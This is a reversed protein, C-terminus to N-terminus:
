MIGNPLTPPGARLAGVDDDDGPARDHLADSTAACCASFSPTLAITMSRRVIAGNSQSPSRRRRARLGVADDDRVFVLQRAAEARLERRADRAIEELVEVRRDPADAREVRRDGVM